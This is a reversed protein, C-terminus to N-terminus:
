LSGDDLITERFYKTGFYRLQINFLLWEITSFEFNCKLCKLPYTNNRKWM